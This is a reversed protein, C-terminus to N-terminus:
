IMLVMLYIRQTQCFWFRDNILVPGSITGNFGNVSSDKADGSFDYRVIYKDVVVGLGDVKAPSTGLIGDDDPDVCGSEIVDYCGDGDSDLDFSNIIGDGDIDGDGEYIDLIGDNDDDLDDEDAVGDKDNDPLVTLVVLSEIDTDCEYAPTSLKVKFQYDNFELPANTLTLVSTKSGNYVEDDVVDVWTVGEDESVQWQFLVTGDVTYLIEYRADRTEIISVSSPNTLITVSSGEELFDFVGNLDRDEPTIYGTTNSIVLGLSDVEVPSDGLLGDSDGDDYGAEIVDLCGDNDSDLDFSNPIGDGDVDSEGEETDLIGDNDDDLDYIDPVKDKDNDPLVNLTAYDSFVPDSCVLLNSIIVRYLNKDMVLEVSKIKLTDSNIGSYVSTDALNIWGDGLNLQWQYSLPGEYDVDVSFSVPRDLAIEVSEPDTVVVPSTGLEKYDKVGSSDLDLPDTYGDEVLEGDGIGSASCTGRIIM